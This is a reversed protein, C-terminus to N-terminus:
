YKQTNVLLERAFLLASRECKAKLNEDKIGEMDEVHAIGLIRRIIKCGTFGLM